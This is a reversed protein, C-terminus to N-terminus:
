GAFAIAGSVQIRGDPLCLVLYYTHAATQTINIDIDGDSESVLHFMKGAIIANLLGDTGIATTSTPATGTITSGDSNDSLYCFLQGCEAVDAWNPTRLQLAINRVHSAEAGITIGVNDFLDSLFPNEKRVVEAVNSPM